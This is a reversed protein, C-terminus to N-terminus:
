SDAPLPLPEPTGIAKLNPTSGVFGANLVKNTAPDVTLALMTGTTSTSDDAFRGHVLVFYVPIDAQGTDTGVLEASKTTTPVLVGDTPNPEGLQAAVELVRKRIAAKEATDPRPPAAHAHPQSNDRFAGSAVAIGVSVVAIGVAALAFPRM